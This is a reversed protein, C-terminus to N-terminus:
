AAQRLPESPATETRPRLILTTRRAVEAASAGAALMRAAEVVVGSALHDAREAAELWITVSSFVSLAVVGALVLLGVGLAAGSSMTAPNAWVEGMLTIAGLSTGLAIAPGARCVQLIATRNESRKQVWQDVETSAAAFVEHAPLGRQLINSLLSHVARFPRPLLRVTEAASADKCALESCGKALADLQDQIRKERSALVGVLGTARAVPFAALCAGVCCLLVILVDPVKSLWTVLAPMIDAALLLM